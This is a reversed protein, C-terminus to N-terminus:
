SPPTPSAAPGGGAHHQKFEEATRINRYDECTFKTSHRSEQVNVLELILHLDAHTATFRSIVFKGGDFMQQLFVGDLEGSPEHRATLIKVSFGSPNEKRYIMDSAWALHPFRHKFDIHLMATTGHPLPPKESPPFVAYDGIYVQSQNQQLVPPAHPQPLPPPGAAKAPRTVTLELMFPPKGRASQGGTILQDLEAPTRAQSFDMRAFKVSFIDEYGPIVEAAMLGFKAQPVMFRKLITKSGDALLRVVACEIDGGPEHRATLLKYSFGAPYETDRGTESAWSVHPFARVFDLHVIGVSGSVPTPEGTERSDFVGFDVRYVGEAEYGKGDPTDFTARHINLAPPPAPPRMIPPPSPPPTPKKFFKDFLSM